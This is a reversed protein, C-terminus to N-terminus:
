RAQQRVAKRQQLDENWDKGKKPVRVSVAYGLKGYKERLRDTAERGPKDADLCLVIRRLHPNEKLYTDLAGESM